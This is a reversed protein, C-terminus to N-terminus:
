GGPLARLCSATGLPKAQRRVERPVASLFRTAIRTYYHRSDGCLRIRTLTVRVPYSFRRQVVDTHGVPIWRMASFKGRAVARAGGWSRWRLGRWGADANATLRAPRQRAHMGAQDDSVLVPEESVLHYRARIGVGTTLWPLGSGDCAADSGVVTVDVATRGDPEARQVVDRVTAVRADGFGDTVADGAAPELVEVRQAGAPLRWSFTEPEGCSVEFRHGTEAVRERDVTLAGATATGLALTLFIGFGLLLKM